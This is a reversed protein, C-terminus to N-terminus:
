RSTDPPPIKLVVGVELLDPNDPDELKDRNAEYIIPWRFPDGYVLGAINWFCDAQQNDVTYYAPTSPETPLAAPQTGAATNPASNLTTLSANVYTPTEQKVQNEPLTTTRVSALRSQEALEAEAKQRAILEAEAKQQAILEAEAKQRRAILEAEAKQRAAEEEAAKKQAAAAEAEAKKQAAEADAIKKQADAAAADAAKKQAAIDAAAKKLAAEADAAKKQAAALDAAAKKQAAAAADAAKKQAAIDAAAKKQAAAADAEAKKRATEAEAAKKQAAVADAEAKKRAAEVEAAKKQATAADAEAKKRAAEAEAAQKQADAVQAAILATDAPSPTETEPPIAAAAQKQPDDAQAAIPATNAPSSTGTEPPIAAAELEAIRKRAADLDNEANKQALRAEDAARQLEQIQAETQASSTQVAVPDQERVEIASTEIPVDEKATDDTVSVPTEGGADGTNVTDKASTDTEAPLAPDDFEDLWYTLISGCGSLSASLVIMFFIDAIRRITKKMKNDGAVAQYGSVLPFTSNSGTGFVFGRLPYFRFDRFL